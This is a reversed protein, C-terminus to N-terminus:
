PAAEMAYTKEDIRLRVMPIENEVLCIHLASLLDNLAHPRIPVHVDWGGPTEEITLAHEALAESVCHADSRNRLHIVLPQPRM